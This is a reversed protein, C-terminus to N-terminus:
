GGDPLALGVEVTAHGPATLALTLSGAAEPPRPLFRWLSAWPSGEGGTEGSVRRYDTGVDDSLEIEPPGLAEAPWPPPVPSAATEWVSRAAEFLRTRENRVPGPLADLGVEVHNAVAVSVLAVEVGDIDGLGVAGDLALPVRPVERVTVLFVRDGDGYDLHLGAPAVRSDMRDLREMTRTCPPPAGDDRPHHLLDGVVDEIEAVAASALLAHAPGAGMRHHRSTSATAECPPHPATADRRGLVPSGLNNSARLTGTPPSTAASM